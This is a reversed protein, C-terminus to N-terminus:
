KVPAFDLFGNVNEGDSFFGVIAGQNNIGNIFTGRVGFAPTQSSGQANYRHFNMGDFIFGHTNGNSATYSGVVAGKDNCGFPSTSIATV